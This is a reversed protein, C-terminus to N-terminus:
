ISTCDALRAYESLTLTEGRRSGDIGARDLVKEVVDRNEMNFGLNFSAPARMLANVLTKRRQGFGARILAFMRAEDKVIVTGPLVPALAVIESNVDPAPLFVTNPVTGLLEVKAHYQAYLSLAGCADSGAPAAMREAFERQVLLVIRKLLRKNDLLIELIPTTIYYPINAVVTGLSGAFVEEFLQPVDMRLFDEFVLHVNPVDATAALLIPELNRDIEISTVSLSIDALALTLAGLGAGIEVVPDRSTLNSAGVIRNLTNRDCLFNQGLRKQARLGHAKLLDSAQKPSSLNLM